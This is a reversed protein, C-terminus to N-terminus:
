NTAGEKSKSERKAETVKWIWIKSGCEKCRM